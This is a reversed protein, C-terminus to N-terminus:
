PGECLGVAFSITYSYDRVRPGSKGGGNAAVDERFRASWILQGAGRMRGYVRAIPAGEEATQLRLSTARGREDPDSGGGAVRADIVGGLVAGAVQGLAAAGVGLVSGGVSGGLAAGAAALVVTAM